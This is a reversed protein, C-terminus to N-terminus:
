FNHFFKLLVKMEYPLAIIRQFLLFFATLFNVFHKLCDVHTADNPDIQDMNQM